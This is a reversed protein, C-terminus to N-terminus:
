ALVTLKAIGENIAYTALEPSVDYKTDEFHYVGRFKQGGLVTIQVRREFRSEHVVLAACGVAFRIVHWGPKGNVHNKVSGNVKTWRGVTAQEGSDLWVKTGAPISQKTTNM